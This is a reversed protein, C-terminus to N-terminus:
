DIYFFDLDFSGPDSLFLNARKPQRQANWIM